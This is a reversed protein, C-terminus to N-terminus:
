LPSVGNYLALFGSIPSLAPRCSMQMRISCPVHTSCVSCALTALADSLSDCDPVMASACFSEVARLLELPVIALVKVIPIRRDFERPEAALVIEGESEEAVTGDSDM